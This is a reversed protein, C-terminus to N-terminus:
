GVVKAGCSPCYDFEYSAFLGGCSSCKFHPIPWMNGFDSDKLDNHCTREAGCPCSCTTDHSRDREVRHNWMTAADEETFYHGTSTDCDSCWAYFTHGVTQLIEAEGGCFPCPKLKPKNASM